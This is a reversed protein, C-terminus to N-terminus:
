PKSRKPELPLVAREQLKQNAMRLIENRMTLDGLMHKLRAIEEDRPDPERSKLDAEGAAMYNRRWASLKAATVGLERSVSDLDEGRMLRLVAEQKKGATFRPRKEKENEGM